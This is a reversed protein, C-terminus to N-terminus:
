ANELNCQFIENTIKHDDHKLSSYCATVDGKESEPWGDDLKLVRGCPLIIYGHFTGHEM